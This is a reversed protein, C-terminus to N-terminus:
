RWSVNDNLLWERDGDGIDVLPRWLRLNFLDVTM